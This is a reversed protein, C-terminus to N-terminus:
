IQFQSTIIKKLFLLSKRKLLLHSEEMLLENRFVDIRTCGRVRFLGRGLLFDDRYRGM